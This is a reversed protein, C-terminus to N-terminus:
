QKGQLRLEVDHSCISPNFAFSNETVVEIYQSLTFSSRPHRDRHGHPRLRADAAAENSPVATEFGASPM